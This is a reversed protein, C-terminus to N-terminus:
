MPPALSSPQSVRASSRRAAPVYFRRLVAGLADRQLPKSLYDDMGAELCARQESPLVSATMAVVPTRRGVERRRLRRTAEFGDLVPMQCDMLVVDYRGKELAKLAEAGDHAVECAVGYRALFRLAVLENVANDEVLLVRMSSYDARESRLEVSPREPRVERVPVKFWFHAGQGLESEFDIEGGMAQVLKRSIALGLGTGGERRAGPTGLQTFPEFLREKERAPIGVGTDRVDFRLAGAEVSVAVSVEGRETFKVANGALNLLVQRVRGGDGRVVKPVAEAVRMSLAVSKESARRALLEGVTQAVRAPEYPEDDLVMQGAMIKEYDLVDNVIRLLADGAHQIVEVYHRQEADLATDRLLAAMGLVGNMPTRIEHSMMAVFESKARSHREARERMVVLDRNTTALEAIVRERWRNYLTALGYMIANFVVPYTGQVLPPTQLFGTRIVGAVVLTNVIVMAASTVGFWILGERAGALFQVGMPLISLSMWMVASPAGRFIAVGAVLALVATCQLHMSVNLRQTRLYIWLTALTLLGHLVYLSGYEVGEQPTYIAALVFMASASVLSLGVVARARALHNIDLRDADVILADIWARAPRQPPKEM